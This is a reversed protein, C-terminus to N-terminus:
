DAPRVKPRSSPAWRPAWRPRPWRQLQGDDCGPCAAPQGLEIEDLLHWIRDAAADAGPCHGGTWLDDWAPLHKQLDAHDLLRRLTGKQREYAFMGSIGILPIFVWTILQGASSNTRPDYDIPGPTAGEIGTIRVPAEALLSQAQELAVDFYAQREAASAFPRIQEAQAVSSNAIDVASSVRSIVSMVARQAVMANMNNPQQRLELTMSGQELHELDFEVPIILM